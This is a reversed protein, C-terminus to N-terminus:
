FSKSQQYILVAELAALVEKQRVAPGLCKDFEEVTKLKRATCDKMRATVYDGWLLQASRFLLSEEAAYDFNHSMTRCTGEMDNSWIDWCSSCESAASSEGSEECRSLDAFTEDLTDGCWDDAAEQILKYRIEGAQERLDREHGVQWRLDRQYLEGQQAEWNVGWAFSGMAVALIIFM